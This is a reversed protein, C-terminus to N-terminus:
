EGIVKLCFTKTEEFLERFCAQPHSHKIAAATPLITTFVAQSSTDLSNIYDAANNGAKPLRAIEAKYFSLFDKLKLSSKVVSNCSTKISIEGKEEPYSGVSQKPYLTAGLGKIQVIEAEMSGSKEELFERYFKLTKTEYYWSSDSRYIKELPTGFLFASARAELPSFRTQQKEFLLYIYTGRAYCVGGPYSFDAGYLEIESAGSQEALSIAAHTVNGGSTDIEPLTKWTRSIYRTLPHGGSFFLKRKARSALLPPSALDLFLPVEEPLGGMFHYYSIHQCDISVVADPTIRENLLCPLSTDTAILFLEKRKERLQKIQLSLSPGAACVAARRVKPLNAEIDEPHSGQM